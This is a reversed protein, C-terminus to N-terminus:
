ESEQPRHRAPTGLHVASRQARRQTEDRKARLFTLTLDIGEIEGIWGEAEAQTRRQLLDAVAAIDTAAYGTPYSAQPCPQNYHELLADFIEEVRV